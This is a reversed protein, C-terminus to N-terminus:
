YEIHYDKIQLFAEIEQEMFYAVPLTLNYYDCLKQHSGDALCMWLQYKHSLNKTKRDKITATKVYVQKIDTVAIEFEDDKGVLRPFVHTSLQQKNVKVSYHWPIILLKVAVLTLIITMFLMGFNDWLFTDMDPVDMTYYGSITMVWMFISIGWLSLLVLVREKDARWWNIDIELAERTRFSAVGKPATVQYKLRLDVPIQELFSFSKACPLCDAVHAELHIQPAKILRFCHPCELTIFM